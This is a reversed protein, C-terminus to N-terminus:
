KGQIEIQQNLKGILGQLQGKNPIIAPLVDKVTRKVLVGGIMRFCKRNRDANQINCRLEIYKIAQFVRTVAISPTRPYDLNCQWLLREREM